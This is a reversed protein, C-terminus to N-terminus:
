DFTPSRNVRNQLIGSPKFSVSKRETIVAEKGTKPNRGMRAKKHHVHFSGFSSIKLQDSRNLASFIQKIIAESLFAAQGQPVLLQRSFRETIQNRTVTKKSM